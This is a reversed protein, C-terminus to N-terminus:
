DATCTAGKISSQLETKLEESAAPAARSLALVRCDTICKRGDYTATPLFINYMHDYLQRKSPLIRDAHDLALPLTSQLWPLSFTVLVRHCLMGWWGGVIAHFTQASAKSRSTCQPISLKLHHYYVSTPDATRIIRMLPM